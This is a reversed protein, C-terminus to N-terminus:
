HQSFAREIHGDRILSRLFPAYEKHGLSRAWEVIDELDEAFSM